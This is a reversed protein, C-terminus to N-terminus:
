NCYVNIYTYICVQILNDVEEPPTTMSTTAEMAGEMYGSRVDMDEFNKEFAEMTTAIQEVNM